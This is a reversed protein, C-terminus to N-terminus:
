NTQGSIPLWAPNTPTPIFQNDAIGQTNTYRFYMTTNSPRYLAPSFVGDGTWDGLDGSGGAGAIQGAM